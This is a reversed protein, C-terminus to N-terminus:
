KPGWPVIRLKYPGAANIKDVERQAATGDSVFGAFGGPYFAELGFYGIAAPPNFYMGYAAVGTNTVAKAPHVSNPDNPGNNYYNIVGIGDTIIGVATTVRGVAKGIKSINYTSTYQNGRWANGYYKPSFGQKATSLRLSGPTIELGLGLTSIGFNFKGADSNWSANVSPTEVAISNPSVTLVFEDLLISKEFTIGETRFAYNEYTSTFVKGHDENNYIDLGKQKALTEAQKYQEANVVVTQDIGDKVEGLSNGKEDEYKTPELGLPDIFYIPNNSFAAYPSMDPMEHALPDTSLFSQVHNKGANESKHM